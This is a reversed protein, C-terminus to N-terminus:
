ATETLTDWHAELTRRLVRDVAVPDPQEPLDSLVKTARFEVELTSALRNVEDLTWEGRKIELATQLDDGTLKVQLRGTRALTIATFFLRICHAANKIDYGYEALLRKRKEGMYGLHVGATMKKLQGYAYGGFAEFMRQSLFVDRHALLVKGAETISCYEAPELWLYTNVNPNGNALLSVFKVVEHVVIDLAEGNTQLTELDHWYYPLGLYHIKPHAIIQFVDQDDTGHKDEPPIYMGHVHSGCLGSLILRRAWVPLRDNIQHQLSGNM